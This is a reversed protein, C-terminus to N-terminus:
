KAPPAYAQKKIGLQKVFQRSADIENRVFAAFQGPTLSMMEAGAKAFKERVDPANLVQAVDKSIKDIVGASTGAPAWMGFWAASEMDRIGAEAMTPVQPLMASRRDSTVALPVLKGEKIGGMAGAVPPFWFAVEGKATAANADVVGKYIISDTQIGAQRKFQEAVFHVQTTEGLSAFKYQGLKAQTMAVLDSVSKAGLSPSAALVFPQKAFPVVPVLDKEPDYPLNTYLSANVAYSISHVLLTYGDPKAKAVADVGPITVGGPRNEVAVPQGWLESLKSAVIRGFTDAVNGEPYPVILKVPQVPYPPTEEITACGALCLAVALLLPHNFKM